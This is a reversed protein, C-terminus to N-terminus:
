SNNPWESAYLDTRAHAPLDCSKELRQRLDPVGSNEYREHRDDKRYQTELLECTDRIVSAAQCGLGYIGCIPWLTLDVGSYAARSAISIKHAGSSKEAPARYLVSDAQLIISNVIIRIDLVSNIREVVNKFSEQSNELDECDFLPGREHVVQSIPVRLKEGFGIKAEQHDEPM